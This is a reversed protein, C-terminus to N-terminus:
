EKRSLFQIAAGYKPGEVGRLTYHTIDIYVGLKSTWTGDSLQRAAHTPKGSVDVYIAVKEYGHEYTSTECPTYGSLEYAEIFAQLTEARPAENPWYYQNFQDPWWWQTTDGAAWAICNYNETRASTERYGESVLHPFAQDFTM